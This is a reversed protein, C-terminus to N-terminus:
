PISSCSVQGFAFNNDPKRFTMHESVEAIKPNSGQTSSALLDSLDSNPLLYHSTPCQSTSFPIKFSSPGNHLLFSGTKPPIDVSPTAMLVDSSVSSSSILQSKADLHVNSITSSHTLDRSPVSRPLSSSSVIVAPHESSAPFDLSNLHSYTPRPLAEPLDPAIICGERLSAYHLHEPSTGDLGIVQQSNYSTSSLLLSPMSSLSSLSPKDSLELTSAVDIFRGSSLPITEKSRNEDLSISDLPFSNQENSIAKKLPSTSSIETLGFSTLSPDQYSSGGNSAFNRNKHSSAELFELTYNELSAQQCSSSFFLDSAGSPWNVSTSSEFHAPNGDSSLLDPTSQEAGLHHSSQWAFELDPPRPEFSTSDLCCSSSPLYSVLEHSQSSQRPSNTLAPFSSVASLNSLKQSLPCGFNVINSESAPIESSSQPTTDTSQLIPNSCSPRISNPTVILSSQFNCIVSTPATDQTGLLNVQPRCLESSLENTALSSKSSILSFPRHGLCDAM